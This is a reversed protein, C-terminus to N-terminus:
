RSSLICFKNGWGHPERQLDIKKNIVERAIPPVETVLHERYRCLPLSL